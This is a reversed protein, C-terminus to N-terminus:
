TDIIRIYTPCTVINEVDNNNGLLASFLQGDIGLPAYLNNTM